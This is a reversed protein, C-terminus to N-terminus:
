HRVWGLNVADKSVTGIAGVGDGLRDQLARKLDRAHDPRAASLKGVPSPGAGRVGRSIEALIFYTQRTRQGFACPVPEKTRRRM